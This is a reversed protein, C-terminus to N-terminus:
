AFYIRRVQLGYDSQPVFSRLSFYEEDSMFICDLALSAFSSKLGAHFWNSSARRIKIGVEIPKVLFEIM